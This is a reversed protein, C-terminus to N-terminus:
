RHRVTVRFAAHAINASLDGAACLVRTRRGVKFRSGSAPKCRAGVTGNTDDTATVRHRVRVTRANRPARVIKNAAGRITPPTLDIADWAPAMITGDWHDTGSGHDTTFGTDTRSVVGSGSAGAFVGTGGVIQFTQSVDLIDTPPRACQSSAAVSLSITGRGRVDLQAPYASIQYEGSSCAAPATEVAAVYTESVFGLGRFALQGAGRRNCETTPTHSSPCPAAGPIAVWPMALHLPFTGASATACLTLAAASVATIWSAYRVRRRLIRM